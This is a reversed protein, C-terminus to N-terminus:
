PVPMDFSVCYNPNAVKTTQGVFPDSDRLQGWRVAKSGASMQVGQSTLAYGVVLGSAPLDSGATIQVTDGAVAVSSITLNTGGARLEFGRGNAWVGNLAAPSPPDLAQDWNLPPVPVHFHVTVVRGSREATTPQLPQWDHGLVAREYVVQGVKEGLIQYGAASLHVGDNNPNAPYQYKPGTCVFDGKRDVGLQWETNNVAPRQGASGAGNPFAHQQSIYMPIRQTQGTITSLDANYDSLLQILDNRYTSSGSDTEGHTMVIVAIGYTKGAARALRTIASAEFLTAAYARGVSMPATVPPNPPQPNKRLEVIGQGSEGVVTHVTVYDASSTAAMVLFTIQDAMATHPTEGYLNAPYASPFTTALPRIPEVLPVMSLGAVNPDFPPMISNGQSGLSLKLNHYPQTTSTSPQAGVSLSQGTGVIGTWDWAPIALGGDGQNSGGTGNASGERGGGDPSASGGTSNADGTNTAAGMGNAGGANVSGGAGTSGGGTPVGGGGNGTSDGGGQGTSTGASQGSAGGSNTIAGAGGGAAPGTASSTGCGVLAGLALGTVIQVLVTSAM